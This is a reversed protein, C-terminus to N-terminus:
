LLMEVTANIQPICAPEHKVTPDVPCTLTVTAKPYRREFVVSDATETRIPGTLPVGYDYRGATPKWPSTGAYSGGSFYSYNSRMILFMALTRNFDIEKESGGAHIMFPLSIAREALANDLFPLTIGVMEYFRGMAQGTLNGMLLGETGNAGFNTDSFHMNFMPFKNHSTSASAVQRMIETEIGLVTSASTDKPLNAANAWEGRLFATAADYFIGDFATNNPDSAALDTVAKIFYARASANFFNWQSNLCLPSLHAAHGACKHGTTAPDLDGSANLFLYDRYTDRDHFIAAESAYYPQADVIPFYMYVPLHPYRAKIQRGQEIQFKMVDTCNAYTQLDKWALRVMSFSALNDLAAEDLFGDDLEGNWAVHLSRAGTMGGRRRQGHRPRRCHWVEPLRAPLVSWWAAGCCFESFCGKDHTHSNNNKVLEACLGLSDCASQMDHLSQCLNVCDACTRMTLTLTEFDHQKVVHEGGFWYPGLGQGFGSDAQDRCYSIEAGVSSSEFWSDVVSSDTVIIADVRSRTSTPASLQDVARDVTTAATISGGKGGDRSSRHDPVAPNWRTRVNGTFEGASGATSAAVRTTTTLPDHNRNPRASIPAVDAHWDPTMVVLTLTEV